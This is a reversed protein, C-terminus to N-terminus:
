GNVARGLYNAYLFLKEGSTLHAQDPLFQEFREATRWSPNAAWPNKTWAAFDIVNEGLGESRYTVDSSTARNLEEDSLTALAGALEVLFGHVNADELDLPRRLPEAGLAALLDALRPSGFDLAYCGELRAGVDDPGRGVYDLNSIEVLGMVVLHDLEEQLDPYHPGGDIKLIKGDFAPLGWVPSLVDALYALAHLRPSALPTIAAREAADLLMVLRSRRRVRSIDSPNLQESIV